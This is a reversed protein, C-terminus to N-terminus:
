KVTSTGVITVPMGLYARRYLDSMEPNELSVCGDTWDSNQRGGGHIEIGGGIRAEPSVQGSNRAQNFRQWDAANPYNLLLALGFATSSFKQTVKYEGEPTSADHEQLKNRFWNRSLNAVYTKEVRGNTILFCRHELKDVLIATKRSKVTWALLDGAQKEWATRLQDDYFRSLEAAVFDESQAWAARSRMVAVLASETQGRDALNRALELLTRAQSQSYNRVTGAKGNSDSEIEAALTRLALDLRAIQGRSRAEGDWQIRLATLCANLLKQSCATYDRRFVLTGDQEALCQKAADTSSRLASVEAEFAIAGPMTGSLGALNEARFELQWPRDRMAAELWLGYAAAGALLVMVTWVLIVLLSKEKAM